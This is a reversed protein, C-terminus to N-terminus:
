RAPSTARAPRGDKVHDDDTPHTRRYDDLHEEVLRQFIGGIASGLLNCVVMAGVSLLLVRGASNGAAVGAVGAVAFGTLGFAGAVAHSLSKM